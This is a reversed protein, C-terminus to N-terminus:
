RCEPIAEAQRPFPPLGTFPSGGRDAHQIATSGPDIKSKPEGYFMYVPRLKEILISVLLLRSISHMLNLISFLGIFRPRIETSM